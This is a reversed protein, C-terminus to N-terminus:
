KELMINSYDVASVRVREALMKEIRTKQLASVPNQRVHAQFMTACVGSGYSFLLIKKNTVETNFLLSLLGIYLSGNYINGYRKGLFLSSEVQNKFKKDIEADNVAPNNLKLLHGYAKQVMKAFPSHFCM